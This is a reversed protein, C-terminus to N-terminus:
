EAYSFQEKYSRTNFFLLNQKGKDRAAISSRTNMQHQFRQQTLEAKIQCILFKYMEEQNTATSLDHPWWSPYWPGHLISNAQSLHDTLKLGTFFFFFYRMAITPNSQKLKPCGSYSPWGESTTILLKLLVPIWPNRRKDGGTNLLM